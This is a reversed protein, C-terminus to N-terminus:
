YGTTKTSLTENDTGALNEVDQIAQLQYINNVLSAYTQQKISGSSESNVANGATNSYTTLDTQKVKAKYDAVENGINTYNKQTFTTPSTNNNSYVGIEGVDTGNIGNDTVDSDYYVSVNLGQIQEPSDNKLYVKATKFRTTDGSAVTVGKSTTTFQEHNPNYTNDTVVSSVSGDIMAVDDANQDARLVISGERSSGDGGVSFSESGVTGDGSVNTTTTAMLKGTPGVAVDGDAILMIKNNGYSFGTAPQLGKITLVNNNLHNAYDGETLYKGNTSANISGMITINANTENSQDWVYTGNKFNKQDEGGMDETSVIIGAANVQSGNAFYAGNPNILIISGIANINGYIQSMDEGIVRNLTIGAPNMAGAATMHNFNVTANKGIDFSSWNIIAKDSTQKIDLTAKGDAAVVANGITVDGYQGVGGTPTATSAPEAAMVVGATYSNAAIILGMAIKRALVLKKKMSM